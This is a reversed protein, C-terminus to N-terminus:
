VIKYINKKKCKPSKQSTPCKQFTQSKQMYIIFIYSDGGSM